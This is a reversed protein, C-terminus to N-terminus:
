TGEYGSIILSSNQKMIWSQLFPVRALNKQDTGAQQLGEGIAYFVRPESEWDTIGYSLALTGLESDFAITEEPAITWAAALGSVDDLFHRFAAAVKNGSSGSSNFSNSISDSSQTLSDSSKDISYSISCGSVTFLAFLVLLLWPSSSKRMHYSGSTIIYELM